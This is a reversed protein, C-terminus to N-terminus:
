KGKERFITKILDLGIEWYMIYASVWGIISFAFIYKTIELPWSNLYYLIMAVAGMGIAHYFPYLFFYRILFNRGERM